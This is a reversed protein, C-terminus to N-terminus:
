KSASWLFCWLEADSAKTRPIWRPGTFEGCLHGTVRFINGNSSTIMISYARQKATSPKTAPIRRPIPEGLSLRRWMTVDDGKPQAWVLFLPLFNLYKWRLYYLVLTPKNAYDKRRMLYIVSLKWSAFKTTASSMKPLWFSLRRHKRHSHLGCWSSELKGIICTIFIVWEM